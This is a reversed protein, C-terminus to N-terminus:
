RRGTGARRGGATLLEDAVEACSPMCICGAPHGFRNFRLEEVAKRAEADRKRRLKAPDVAVSRSRVLKGLSWLEGTVRACRSCEITTAFSRRKSYLASRLARAPEGICHCGSPSSTRGKGLSARGKRLKQLEHDNM